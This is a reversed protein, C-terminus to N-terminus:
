VEPEVPMGLPTTTGCAPRPLRPVAIASRSAMSWSERTSCNEELPKSAETISWNIAKRAPAASTTGPGSCSSPVSRASRSSFCATLWASIGGAARAVKGCPSNGCRCVSTTPPSAQGAASAAFHDSPRRM